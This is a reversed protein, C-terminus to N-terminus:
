VASAAPATPTGHPRRSTRSDVRTPVTAPRIPDRRKRTAPGSIEDTPTSQYARIGTSEVGHVAVSESGDDSMGGSLVIM